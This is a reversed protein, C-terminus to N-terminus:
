YCISNAVVRICSQANVMCICSVGYPDLRGLVNEACFPKWYSSVRWVAMVGNELELLRGGQPVNDGTCVGLLYMISAPYVELKRRYFNTRGSVGRCARM